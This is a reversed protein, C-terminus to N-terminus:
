SAEKGVDVWVGQTLAVMRALPLRVAAYIGGGAPIMEDFRQMARDLYIPLPKPLGFPCVGGVPHSTHELVAEADLMRATSKFHQKFKANDLRTDGAMVLLCVEDRIRLALTKAIQGHAVGHAAAATAVTPTPADTIIVQLDSARQALDAQVSELSV